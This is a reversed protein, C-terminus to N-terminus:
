PVAFMNVPQVMAGISAPSNYGCPFSECLGIFTEGNQVETAPLGALVGVVRVYLNGDVGIWTVVVKTGNFSYNAILESGTLKAGLSSESIRVM